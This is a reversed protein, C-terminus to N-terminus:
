RTKFLPASCTALREYYGSLGNTGDWLGMCMKLYSDKVIRPVILSHDSQRKHGEKSVPKRSLIM